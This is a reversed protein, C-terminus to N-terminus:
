PRTTAPLGQLLQQLTRGDPMAINGQLIGNTIELGLSRYSEFQSETFWQDTTTEHPFTPHGNAYSVIGAGETGHYAPKIYLIIGNGCGDEWGDASEYDIVGIRYYPIALRQEETLQGKPRNRISELFDFDIRIGLDIYIKRVANGLDEFTFGPDCGADVVVIFRCRRRVMEYLGLNEFHGGDSLYVYPRDDTTLGFAEGVLPKIAVAPGETKYSQEGEPGPNGLWWGLRVNFLALLLTITPSSHYGMNPSVAAGSIAMATGLTLGDSGGYESSLRFGKYASGCHLPSVTFSEAKREQWALRKTDVVNLAINVVHFLGFTNRDDAAQPPWLTHAAPNDSEDFGTFRDPIRSRRSAGLYCRVLRNRYVAHLSFRNINVFNSALTGIGGTIAAGLALWGIIPWVSTSLELAEVFSRRLLAKDLLISLLIILIAVFAPAALALAWDMIQDTLSKDGDDSVASTKSSRGILATAIGTAGGISTLYKGLAPFYKLMYYGCAISLAATVGWGVAAATMWGASRGLWERDSDSEKEYSVLGVFTMEASLQATLVWPVCFIMPLLLRFKNPDKDDGSYPDLLTFLIAGFGVLLGYVAGSLTWFLFDRRSGRIPRGALWGLAFVAASGLALLIIIKANGTTELGTTELWKVGPHSVLAIAVLMSSLLSWILDNRLYVGQTVNHPSPVTGPAERRTPRHSTTFAQARILCAAGVLGMVIPVWANESRGIGVFTAAILKLGLLVLCVLPIIVLWNLVLNRIYIAVGTWTDASGLGVKPTLYNSYARLWSLQPPEVDPGDPRGTLNRWVTPYDDRHRWASLWSGIYGGGSVTSLFHFRGLLSNEPTPTPPEEGQQPAVGTRVDYAALAQIVGLCFTASRIGGGSLSLATRDLKNLGRYFAKRSEVDQATEEGEHRTDADKKHLRRQTAQETAGANLDRTQQAPTAPNIAAAEAALVQEISLPGM